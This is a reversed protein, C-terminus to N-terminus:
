APLNARGLSTIKLFGRKGEETLTQSDDFQNKVVQRVYRYPQGDGLELSFDPTCLM